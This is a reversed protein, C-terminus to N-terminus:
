VTGGGGFSHMSMKGGGELQKCEFEIDVGKEVGGATFLSWERVKITTLTNVQNYEIQGSSYQIDPSSTSTLSQLGDTCKKDAPFLLM